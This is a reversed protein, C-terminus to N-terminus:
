SVDCLYSLLDFTDSGITEITRLDDWTDRQSVTSEFSTPCTYELDNTTRCDPQSPANVDANHQKSSSTSTSATSEPSMLWSSSAYNEENGKEYKKILESPSLLLHRNDSPKEITKVMDMKLDWKEDDTTSRLGKLIGEEEVTSADKGEYKTGSLRWATAINGIDSHRIVDCSNHDSARYSQRICNGSLKFTTSEGIHFDCQAQFTDMCWGSLDQFDEEWASFATTDEEKPPNAKTRPFVWSDKLIESEMTPSLLPVTGAKTSAAAGEGAPRSRVGRSVSLPLQQRNCSKSVQFIMKGDISRAMRCIRADVNM